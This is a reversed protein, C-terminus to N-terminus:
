VLREEEMENCPLAQDLVYDRIWNDNLVMMNGVKM